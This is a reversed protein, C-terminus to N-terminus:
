SWSLLMIEILLLDIIRLFVLVAYLRRSLDLYYLYDFQLVFDSQILMADSSPGGEAQKSLIDHYNRFSFIIM